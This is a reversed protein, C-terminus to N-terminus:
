RPDCGFKERRELCFRRVRIHLNWVTVVRQRVVHQGRLLNHTPSDSVNAPPQFHPLEVGKKLWKDPVSHRAEGQHIYVAVGVGGSVEELESADLVQSVVQLEHLM